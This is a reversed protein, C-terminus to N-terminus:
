SYNNKSLNLLKLKSEDSLDRPYTAEKLQERLGEPYFLRRMNTITKQIPYQVRHYTVKFDNTDIIAYSACPNEDRPKGVSGPNIVTLRKGLDLPTNYSLLLPDWDGHIQEDLDFKLYM